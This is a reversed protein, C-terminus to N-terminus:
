EDEELNDIQIANATATPAASPHFLYYYNLNIFYWLGNIL